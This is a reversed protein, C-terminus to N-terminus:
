PQNGTQASSARPPPRNVRRAAAVFQFEEDEEDAEHQEQRSRTKNAGGSLVNTPFHPRITKNILNM